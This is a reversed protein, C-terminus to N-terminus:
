GDRQSPIATQLARATPSTYLMIYEEDNEEVIEFGVAKYMKVAYNQKQVALSARKYGARELESLMSKMLATGIGKNRYQKYLSIAFSPTDDDIHGYDNMIRVWVAGVTKGDAEAVLAIDGKKKGFDAVYVQLEPQYIIERPPAAAGEPIFIAEYLFDELLGYESDRIQRIIYDMDIIKWFDKVARM